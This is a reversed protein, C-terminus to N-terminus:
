KETEMKIRWFKYEFPMELRLHIRKGLGRNGFNFFGVERGAGWELPNCVEVERFPSDQLIYTLVGRDVGLVDIAARPTEGELFFVRDGEKVDTYEVRM